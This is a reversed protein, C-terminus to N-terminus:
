ITNYRIGKKENVQKNIWDYVVQMESEYDVNIQFYTLDNEECQEKQQRHAGILYEQNIYDDVEKHEIESRHEIIGTMFKTQIYRESFGIYLTIIHRSYEPEFSHIQDAALYCGEIIIHQDNEINTIIIGKVIPWLKQTLEADDDTSKFDCYKNGRILGMKVHDISLYPIKYKELLKQALTTKGSCSVGGILIVM